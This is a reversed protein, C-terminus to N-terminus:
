RLLQIMDALIAFAFLVIIGVTHIVNEVKRNVPKGRIWEITTFVIKSGDLAPLPMLNMVALNASILCIVYALAGFGTKASEAITSIITIPGGASDSFKLGGTLLQGFLWFIKYVMYFGYSFSRAFATFFNLKVYKISSTFGFAKRTMYEGNEDTLRNGDDDLLYIDSRKVTVKQKKGDRLITFVGEEDTGIRAFAKNLDDQMLINVAKGNVDLIVDGPLLLENQAIYSEESLAEVTPLLQGYFTFILTILVFASILNFTAGAALVILRKWPKQANFAGSEENEEKEGDDNEGYFQCFGGLPFPRVSFIEGNKKNTIKVIRPGFGIAFEVIKFGLIKGAIYHGFEHVVVMFMLCCLALLIYGITSMIEGFTAAALFIM